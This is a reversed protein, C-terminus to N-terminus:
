VTAVRIYGCEKYARRNGACDMATCFVDRGDDTLLYWTRYAHRTEKQRRIRYERNRKPENMM